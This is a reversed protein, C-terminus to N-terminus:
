IRQEKEYLLESFLNDYKEIMRKNSFDKIIKDQSARGMVQRALPDNILRTLATKLATVDAPDVLIGNVEDEILEINGGVRTAIVPKAFLMYEMIANSLGESLSPQVCIDARNLIQRVDSRSGLFIIRDNVGLQEVLKKLEGGMNDNGVLVLKIKLNDKALEAIAKILFDHGKIPKINGVTMIVVDEPNVGPIKVNNTSNLVDRTDIGNHIVRVKDEPINEQVLILDRIANANGVIRDTLRDIFKYAWVHLPKKWFGMDRRNSIVVPINALRGCVTGWIDSGFHYNMVVDPQEKRLYKIFRIGQYIGSAGYIRKIPFELVECNLKEVIKKFQPPIKELIMISLTFKSKDLGSVLEFLQKEAGGTIGDFVDIVVCIKMVKYNTNLKQILVPIKQNKTHFMTEAFNINVDMNDAFKEFLVKRIIKLDADTFNNNKRINLDLIGKRSQVFQFQVVRDYIGPLDLNTVPIQSGDKAIVFNKLRGGILKFLPFNRGCSCPENLLYGVDGTQYRILPMAFNTLSTVVIDQYEEGNKDSIFETIGFEPCLHLGEHEQCECGLVAREEMGYWDFCKCGWFEEIFKRQRDSFFESHVIIGKILGEPIIIGKEKLCLSFFEIGSPYGNIFKVNFDQIAKYYDVANNRNLRYASLFLRNRYRNFEFIKNQSLRWDSLSALRDDISCGAWSFFRWVYPDFNLYNKNKEYLVNLPSGTTGSTSLTILDKGHFNDAKLKSFNKRILDKTLVPIKKLDAISKIDAPTIHNADFLEKYYQVHAYAHDILAHLCELQYKEIDAKSMWQMKNLQDLQTFFRKPLRLKQPLLGVIDRVSNKIIVILRNIIM